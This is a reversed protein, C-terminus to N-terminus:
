LWEQRTLLLHKKKAAISIPGLENGFIVELSTRCKARCIEELEYKLVWSKSKLVLGLKGMWWGGCVCARHPTQSDPFSCGRM